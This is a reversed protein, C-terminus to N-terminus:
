VRAYEFLRRQRLEQARENLRIIALAKEIDITPLKRRITELKMGAFEKLRSLMVMFDYLVPLPIKVINYYIHKIERKEKVIKLFLLAPMDYNTTERGRDRIIPVVYTEVIQGKKTKRTELKLYYMDKVLEEINNRMPRPIPYFRHNDEKRALERWDEKLIDTWEM